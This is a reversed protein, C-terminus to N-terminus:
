LKQATALGSTRAPTAPNVAQGSLERPHPSRARSLLIRRRLRRRVAPARAPRGLIAAVDDTVVSHHEESVALPDFERVFRRAAVCESVARKTGRLPEDLLLGAEVVHLVPQPQLSNAAM